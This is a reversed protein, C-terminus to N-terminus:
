RIDPCKYALFVLNESGFWRYLKYLKWESKYTQCYIFYHLIKYFFYRNECDMKAKCERNLALTLLACEGLVCARVKRHTHFLRVAERALSVVM